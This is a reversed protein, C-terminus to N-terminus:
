RGAMQLRDNCARACCTGMVGPQACAIHGLTLSASVRRVDGVELLKQRLQRRGEDAGVRHSEPNCLLVRALEQLRELDASAQGLM